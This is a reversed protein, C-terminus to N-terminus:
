HDNWDSGAWNCNLFRAADARSVGAVEAVFTTAEKEHWLPLGDYTHMFHSYRQRDFARLAFEQEDDPEAVGILHAYRWMALELTLGADASTDPDAM